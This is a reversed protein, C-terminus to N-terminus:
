VGLYYNITTGVNGLTVTFGLISAGYLYGDIIEGLASLNHYLGSAGGKSAVWNTYSPTSTLTATVTQNPSATTLTISSTYDNYGTLRLLYPHAINLSVNTITAPTIGVLNGDLFISAGPTSPTSFSISGTTPTVTVSCFATDSLTGSPCTDTVTLNIGYIGQLNFTYSHPGASNPLTDTGGGPKTITWAYTFPATGQAVSATLTGVSNLPMSSPCTPTGLKMINSNSESKINMKIMLQRTVKEILDPTLSQGNDTKVIYETGNLKIIKENM